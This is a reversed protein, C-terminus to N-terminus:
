KMTKRQDPISSLNIFGAAGNCLGSLRSWNKGGLKSSVETPTLNTTLMLPQKNDYAWNLLTFYQQQWWTAERVHETGFDDIIVFRASKYANFYNRTSNPTQDDYTDKVGDIFAEATIFIGSRDPIGHPTTLTAYLANAACKALTTKGNGYGQGKGESAWLVLGRGHGAIADRAWQKVATLATAADPHVAPNFRGFPDESKM